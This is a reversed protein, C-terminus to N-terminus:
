DKLLGETLAKWQPGAFGNRASLAVLTNRVNDYIGADNNNPTENRGHVEATVTKNLRQVILTNTTDHDFFHAITKDANGPNAVPRVTMSIFESDGGPDDFEVITEIRVWDLGKGAISGPAPLDIYFYDGTLAMRYLEHGNTDALSFKSSAPGSILHWNSIDKLKTKALLFRRNAEEVDPFEMANIIDTQEGKYQEPITEEASRIM